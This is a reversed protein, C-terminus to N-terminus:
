AVPPFWIHLCPFLFLSSSLLCSLYIDSGTEKGDHRGRGWPSHAAQSHGLLQSTQGTNEMTGCADKGVCSRESPVLRHLGKKFVPSGSM